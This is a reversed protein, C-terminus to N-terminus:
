SKALEEELLRQLELREDNTLSAVVEDVAGVHSSWGIETIVRSDMQETLDAFLALSPDDAAGFPQLPVSAAAGGDRAGSPLRLTRPATVYVSIAVAAAIGAIAWSRWSAPLAIRERWGALRSGQAEEGAVAERVRQSLHDWFLPSPEPVNAADVVASMSGRLSAIQQRCVDCSQLHPATVEARAGEALDILEEPALHM